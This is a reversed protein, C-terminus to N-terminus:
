NKFNVGINIYAITYVEFVVVSPAFGKGSEPPM